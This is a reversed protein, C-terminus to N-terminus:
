DNIITLVCRFGMWATPIKIDHPIFRGKKCFEDKHFWSGGVIFNDSTMEAVNGALGKLKQGYSDLASITFPLQSDRCNACNSLYGHKKFYKLEEKSNPLVPDKLNAPYLSGNDGSYAFDSWQKLSPLSFRVKRNKHTINYLESRWNCFRIAQLINIGVIPYDDYAPHTFYFRGLSSDIAFVVSSDPRYYARDEEPLSNLFQRYENVTIETEDVWLSDNIKVMGYFKQAHTMLPLLLYILIILAKKM